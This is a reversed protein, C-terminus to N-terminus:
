NNMTIAIGRKMQDAITATAATCIAVRHRDALASFGGGNMMSFPPDLSMVSEFSPTSRIALVDPQIRVRPMRESKTSVASNEKTDASVSASIPM